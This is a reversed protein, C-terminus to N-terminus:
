CSALPISVKFTYARLAIFDGIEVLRSAFGKYVLDILAFDGCVNSILAFQHSSSEM